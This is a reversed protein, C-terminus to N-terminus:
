KIGVGPKIADRVIVGPHRSIKDSFVRADSVIPRLDRSVQEINRAARNLRNYLQEDNLLMGLSGEGKEIRSIVLRVLHTTEAINEMAAAIQDAPPPKSPDSSESFKRLTRDVLEIADVMREIPTKQDPGSRQSFTRMMTDAAEFTHNLKDITDPLKGVAEALKAQNEKSGLVNQMADLSTAANRLIKQINEQADKNLISQVQDAAQGLKKSAEALALGTNTVTDIPEQLAKKLGTPDDSIEGVLVTRTDIPKQPAHSKPDRAFVLATDGFLDRSLYCTENQYLTRNMHISATVMVATDDDILEVESVKGILVGSKRVPTGSSVGGAQKFRVHVAYTRGPMTPLKGFVVLLIAVAILAGLFLLGVRFQMVRDDM